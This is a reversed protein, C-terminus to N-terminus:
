KTYMSEDTVSLQRELILLLLLIVMSLIENNIEVFNILDLQSEFKRGRSRCDFSSSVTTHLM